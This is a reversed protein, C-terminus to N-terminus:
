LPISTNKSNKIADTAYGITALLAAAVMVLLGLKVKTIEFGPYLYTGLLLGISTAYYVFSRLKGLPHIKVNKFGRGINIFGTIVELSLIAVVWVLLNLAGYVFVLNGLVALFIAKDRIPDLYFGLRSEQKLARALFGDLFDSLCALTLFSLSMLGLENLYAWVYVFVSALGIATVLNAWTKWKM